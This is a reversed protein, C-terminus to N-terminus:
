EITRSLVYHDVVTDSNRIKITIIVCYKEGYPPLPLTCSPRQKTPMADNPKM